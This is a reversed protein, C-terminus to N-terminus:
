NEKDAPAIKQRRQLCGKICILTNQCAASATVLGGSFIVGSL